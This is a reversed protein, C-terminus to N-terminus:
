HNSFRRAKHGRCNHIHVHAGAEIDTLALGIVEGYKIIEEDLAISRLAIKHGRPIDTVAHILPSSGTGTILVAEGAAIAETATAVQDTDRVQIAIKYETTDNKEFHGQEAGKSMIGSNRAEWHDFVTDKDSDKNM